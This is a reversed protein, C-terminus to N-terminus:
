GRGLARQQGADQGLALGRGRLLALRDLLRKDPEVVADAALDAGRPAHRPRVEAVEIGVVVEIAEVGRAVRHAQQQDELFPARQAVVGNGVRAVAAVHQEALRRVVGRHEVSLAPPCFQTTSM